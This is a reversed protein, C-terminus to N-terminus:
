VANFGNLYDEKNFCEVVTDMEDELNLFSDWCTELSDLFSM